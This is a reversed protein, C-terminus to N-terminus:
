AKMRSTTSMDTDVECQVRSVGCPQKKAIVRLTLKDLVVKVSHVHLIDCSWKQALM